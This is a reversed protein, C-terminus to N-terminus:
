SRRCARMCPSRGHGSETLAESSKRGLVQLAGGLQGEGVAFDDAGDVLAATAMVTVTELLTGATPPLGMALMGTAVARTGLTLLMLGLLPELVVEGFLERPWVAEQGEGDRLGQAGKDTGLLAERLVGQEV